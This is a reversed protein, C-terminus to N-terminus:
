APGAGGHDRGTPLCAISIHVIGLELIWALSEPLKCRRLHCMAKIVFRISSRLLSRKQAQVGAAERSSTAQTQGTHDDIASTQTKSPLTFPNYNAAFSKPSAEIAREGGDGAATGDIPQNDGTRTVHLSWCM